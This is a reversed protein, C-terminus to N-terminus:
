EAMVPDLLLELCQKVVIQKLLEKDKEVKAIFLLFGQTLFYWKCVMVEWEWKRVELELECSGM